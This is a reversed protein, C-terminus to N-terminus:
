RGGFSKKNGKFDQQPSLDSLIIKQPGDYMQGIYHTPLKPM